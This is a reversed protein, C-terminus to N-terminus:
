KIRWIRYGGAMKRYSFQKKNAKGFAYAAQIHSTRDTFISDKVNMRALLKKIEGIEPFPINHEIEM